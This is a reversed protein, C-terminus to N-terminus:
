YMYKLKHLICHSIIWGNLLLFCNAKATKLQMGPIYYVIIILMVYMIFTCMLICLVTMNQTKNSLKVCSSFFILLSTKFQLYILSIIISTHLKLSLIIITRTRLISRINSVFKKLLTFDLWHTAMRLKDEPNPNRAQKSVYALM